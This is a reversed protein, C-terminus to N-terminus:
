HATVTNRYDDGVAIVPDACTLLGVRPNENRGQRGLHGAQTFVRFSDKVAGSRREGLGNGTHGPDGFFLNRHTLPVPFLPGFAVVERGHAFV